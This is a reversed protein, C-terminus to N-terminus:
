VKADVRCKRKLGRLKEKTLGVEDIAFKGMVQFLENPQEERILHRIHQQKVETGAKYLVVLKRPQDDNELFVPEEQMNNGAHPPVKWNPKVGATEMSAGNKYKPFEKENYMNFEQKIYWGLWGKSAVGAPNLAYRDLPEAKALRKKTLEREKKCSRKRVGQFFQDDELLPYGESHYFCKLCANELDSWEAVGGVSFPPRPLLM